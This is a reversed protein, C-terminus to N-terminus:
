VKAARRFGAKYAANAFLQACSMSCFPDQKLEYTGDWVSFRWVTKKGHYMDKKSSIVQLDGAYTWNHADEPKSSQDHFHPNYVFTIKKEGAKGCFACHKM